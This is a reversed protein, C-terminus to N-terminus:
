LIEFYAYAYTYNLHTQSISLNRTKNWRYAQRSLMSYKDRHYETTVSM